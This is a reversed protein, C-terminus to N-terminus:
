KYRVILEPRNVSDAECSGFEMSRYQEETKLSVRFGFNKDPNSVMTQVYKTVDIKANYNWQKTSSPITDENRDTVPPQNKWTITDENWDKTVREVLCSNDPYISYPSGPYISNGQIIVNSSSEGYLHLEASKINATSPIQSLGSFKIFFRVTMPSGLDTWQAAVLEPVDNFNSNAVAPNSKLTQVYADHGDEHGPRLTLIHLSDSQDANSINFGTQQTGTAADKKVLLLFM